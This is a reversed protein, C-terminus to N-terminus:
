CKLIKKKSKTYWLFVVIVFGSETNWSPKEVVNTSLVCVGSLQLRLLVLLEAGYGSVRIRKASGGSM